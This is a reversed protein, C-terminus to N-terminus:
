TRAKLDTFAILGDDRIDLETISLPAVEIRWMALPPENIAHTVASRVVGGHTVAIVVADRNASLQSLWSGVRTHLDLLSEGHHPAATPDVMWAHTAAPDEAHIEALTRGAWTGFDCEALRPEIIPTLGLALATERCRQAPSSFADASTPLGPALEAAAARGATDLPEDLPFAHTRTASTPAHRILLLRRSM